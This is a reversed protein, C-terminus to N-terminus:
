EQVPDEGFRNSGITGRLFWIEILFWIPGVFPILFILLFWGSRNRDHLRKIALAMSPWLGIIGLIMAIARSEETNVGYLLVNNLISLPLLPLFGKLWYDSRSMRGKFSFLAEGVTMHTGKITGVDSSSALNITDNFAAEAHATQENEARNGTIGINRCSCSECVGNTLNLVGAHFGCTKCEGIM